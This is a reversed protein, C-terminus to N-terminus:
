FTLVSQLGDIPKMKVQLIFYILFQFKCVCLNRFVTYVIVVPTEM